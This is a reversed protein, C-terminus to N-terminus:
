IRLAPYLDNESDKCYQGEYGEKDQYRVSLHERLSSSQTWSKRITQRTFSRVFGALIFSSSMRKKKRHANLRTTEHCISFLHVELRRPRELFPKAPFIDHRIAIEQHDPDVDFRSAAMREMGMWVPLLDNVDQRPARFL